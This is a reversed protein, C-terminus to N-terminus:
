SGAGAVSRCRPADVLRGEDDYRFIDSLEFSVRQGNLPLSGVAVAHVRPCLNRRDDDPM